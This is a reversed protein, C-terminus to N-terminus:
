VDLLYRALGHASTDPDGIDSICAVDAFEDGGVARAM